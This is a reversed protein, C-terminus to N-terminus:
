QLDQWSGLSPSALVMFLRGGDSGIQKMTLQAIGTLIQTGSATFGVKKDCTGDLYTSLQITGSHGSFKIEIRCLMQILAERVAKLRGEM